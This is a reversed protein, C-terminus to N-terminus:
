SGDPPDFWDWSWPAVIELPAALVPGPTGADGTVAPVLRAAVELPDADLFCVTIRHDGPHWRGGGLEPAATFTWVGAVGPDELLRAPGAHGPSREGDEVVVFVGRGPRHPVADASVLV